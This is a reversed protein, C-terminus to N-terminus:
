FKGVYIDTFCVKKGFKEDFNIHGEKKLKGLLDNHTESMKDPLFWKNSSLKTLSTFKSEAYKILLKHNSLSIVPFVIEGNDLLFDRSQDIISKTLKLGDSGSDCPAFKFWPSVRAIHESIGSIDNIVLDFKKNRWPNFLEGKRVDNNIKEKESNIKCFNVADESLDSSHLKEIKLFKSLTIGVVGIGCGLDLLNNSKSYNKLCANIIFDSTATPIFCKENYLLEIIKGKTKQKYTYM